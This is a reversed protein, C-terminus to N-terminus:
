IGKLELLKDVYEDAKEPTDCIGLKKVIRKVFNQVALEGETTLDTDFYGGTILINSLVRRGADTSFCTRYATITGPNVKNKRAM